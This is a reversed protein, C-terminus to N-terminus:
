PEPGRGALRAHNGEAPPVRAVFPDPAGDEAGDMLVAAEMAASERRPRPMAATAPQANRHLVLPSSMLNTGHFGSAMAPM